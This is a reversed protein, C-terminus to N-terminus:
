QCRHILLVMHTALTYWAATFTLLDQRVTNQSRNMSPFSSWWASSRTCLLFTSHREKKYPCNETDTPQSLSNESDVVTGLSISATNPISLRSPTQTRTWIIKERLVPM